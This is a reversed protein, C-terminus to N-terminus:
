ISGFIQTRVADLAKTMNDRNVKPVVIVFKEAFVGDRDLADKVEQALRVPDYFAVTFIVDGMRVTADFWGKIEAQWEYESFGDGFEIECDMTQREIVKQSM